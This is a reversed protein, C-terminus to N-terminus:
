GGIHTEDGEHKGISPLGGTSASDGETQIITEETTTTKNQGEGEEVQSRLKRLKAIYQQRSREEPTTATSAHRYYFMAAGVFLIFIFIALQGSLAGIFLGSIGSGRKFAPLKASAIQVGNSKAIVQASTAEDDTSPNVTLKIEKESHAPVDIVESSQNWGPPLGTAYLTVAPLANDGTNAVKATFVLAGSSQQPESVSMSATGSCTGVRILVTGSGVLSNGFASVYVLNDGAKLASTPIAIPFEASLGSEIRLSRTFVPTSGLRAEVNFDGARNGKNELQAEVNLVQPLRCDLLDIGAATIAPLTLVAEQPSGRVEVTWKNEFLQLTGSFARLTVQHIGASASPAARVVFTAKTSAARDLEFDAIAPTVTLAGDDSEATLKFNGAAGTNRVRYTAVLADGGSLTDYNCMADTCFLPTSRTVELSKRTPSYISAFDIRSNVSDCGTEGCNGIPNYAKTFDQELRTSGCTEGPCPTISVALLKSKSQCNSGGPSCVSAFVRVQVVGQMCSLASIHLNTGKAGNGDITLQSADFVGTLDWTSASFFVTDGANAGSVWVPLTGGSCPTVELTTAGVGM